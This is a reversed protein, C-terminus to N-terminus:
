YGLINDWHKGLKYFENYIKIWQNRQQREARTGQPLWKIEESIRHTIFYFPNRTYLNYLGIYILYQYYYQSMYTKVIRLYLKCLCQNTVRGNYKQIEIKNHKIQEKTLPYNIYLNIKQLNDEHFFIMPSVKKFKFIKRLWEM